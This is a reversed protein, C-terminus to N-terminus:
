GVRPRSARLRAGGVVSLLGVCWAILTAPEPTALPQMYQASSTAGGPPNAAQLAQDIAQAAAPSFTADPNTMMAMNVNTSDLFKGTQDFKEPVGFALMLEHSVNHALVWELQDVSQVAGAIQDIFNFGNRGIDTEGIAGPTIASGTGSVISMTHAAPTNPDTTLTLPVGSLQFTQEVRQAVTSVFAQQQQANPTGGFLKDVAGSLYWSQAGGTTLYSAEPYPGSGFNLYADVM